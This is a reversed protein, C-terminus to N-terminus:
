TPTTSPRYQNNHPKNKFLESKKQAAIQIYSDTARKKELGTIDLMDEVLVNSNIVRRLKSTINEDEDAITNIKKPSSYPRKRQPEEPFAPGKEQITRYKKIEEFVKFISSM